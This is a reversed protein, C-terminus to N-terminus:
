SRPYAAPLMVVGVLMVVIGALAWTPDNTLWYYVCGALAAGEGFAWGILSLTAFQPLDTVAARMRRVFAIGSLALVCLVPLAYQIGQPLTARTFAQQSHAFWTAGAFMLVGLIMAIQILLLPPAQPRPGTM